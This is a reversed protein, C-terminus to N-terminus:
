ITMDGWEESGQKTKTLHLNIMINPMDYLDLFESTTMLRSSELCYKM